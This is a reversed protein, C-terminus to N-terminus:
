PQSAEPPAASEPASEPAPEPVAGPSDPMPGQVAADLRTIIEGTIDLWESGLIVTEPKLLALIGEDNMLQVLIPLVTDFFRQAESESWRTLAQSAQAREARIAEVRADFADARARFEDPTLSVRADTLAREEAALQDFYTQNEAELRAEAARVGALIQQGLRSGRFLRDQDLIRFPLVSVGPPLQSLGPAPESMTQASLPVPAGLLAGAILIPALPNM